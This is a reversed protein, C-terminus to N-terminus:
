NQSTTVRHTIILIHSSFYGMIWQLGVFEFGLFDRANDIIITKQPEFRAVMERLFNLIKVETANKLPIVETWRTFYDTAILIWKNGASSPPNIMDIFDIGWQAFPEDVVIPILAM